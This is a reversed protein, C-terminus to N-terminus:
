TAECFPCFTHPHIYVGERDPIERPHYHSTIFKAPLPSHFTFTFDLYDMTGNNQKLEFLARRVLEEILHQIPLDSIYRIPIDCVFITPIGIKKLAATYDEGTQRSLYTAIALLYESGYILYHNAFRILNVDDVSLYLHGGRNEVHLNAIADLLMNETVSPYESSLFLERAMVNAAEIDLPTLGNRLYSGVDRPRCAHFLRIKGFTEGFKRVLKAKTLSSYDQNKDEGYFYQCPDEKAENWLESPVFKKFWTVIFSSQRTFHSWIFISESQAM